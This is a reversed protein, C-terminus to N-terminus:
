LMISSLTCLVLVSAVDTLTALAPSAFNVPDMDFRELILPVVTGMVVAGVVTIGMSLAVVFASLMTSGKTTVVRVFSTLSLLAGLLLAGRTEKWLVRPSNERTIEGTALGRIVMASSQNGANGASGALMTLFLALVINREIVASFRTLIASSLSQLAMLGVLWAGRNWCLRGLPTGFYTEGGGSGSYRMMDDTAERESEKLLDQPLLVGVLAGGADVIPAQSTGSEQVEDLAEEIRDAVGVVVECPRVLRAVPTAGKHLLLATIPVYGVLKCADTVYLRDMDRLSSDEPDGRASDDAHISRVFGICQDVTYALPVNVVDMEVPCALADKDATVTVTRALLAPAAEPAQHFFREEGELDEKELLVDAVVRNNEGVPIWDDWDIDPSPAAYQPKIRKSNGPRLKTIVDLLKLSSRPRSKEFGSNDLAYRTGLKQKFSAHAQSSRTFISNIHPHM